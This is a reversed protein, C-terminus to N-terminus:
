KRKRELKKAYAPIVYSLESKLKELVQQSLAQLSPRLFPQASLKSTGFEQALSVASKKVSVVAIAADTERVYDSMRDKETPIRFDLRVTQRLHIPGVNKEDYPATAQVRHYVDQMAVGAARALTGRAITDARFGKAMDLLQQEFEDFGELKYLGKQPQYESM